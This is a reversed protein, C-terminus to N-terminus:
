KVVEQMLIKSMLRDISKVSLSNDPLELLSQQKLDFQYILEDEPIIADPKIELREL